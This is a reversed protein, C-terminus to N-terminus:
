CSVVLLVPGTKEGETGEPYEGTCRSHLVNRIATGNKMKLAIETISVCARDSQTCHGPFSYWRPILVANLNSKCLAHQQSRRRTSLKDSEGPRLLTVARIHM